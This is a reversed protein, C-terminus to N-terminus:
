ANQTNVAERAPTPLIAPTAISQSQVEDPYRFHYGGAAYHKICSRSVAGHVMGLWEAAQKITPFVEGNEKQYWFHFGRVTRQHQQCAAIVNARNVKCHRATAEVAPFIEGSEICIVAHRHPQALALKAKTDESIIRGMNSASIKACTEATHHKGFMHHNEGSNAASIKANREPTYIKSGGGEGGDTLNYGNPFKCNFYAIWFIERENLQEPTECEELVEVNFNEWGHKRIAKGIVTDACRHSAMRQNLPTTTKGVYLKGNLTNTIKYIVGYAM